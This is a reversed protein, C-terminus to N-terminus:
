RSGRVRPRSTPCIVAPSSTVGRTDGGNRCRATRRPLGLLTARHVRCIGPFIAFPHAQAWRATMETWEAARALDGVEECASVLSCYVKGTSYPGLRGEVAALMAEDILGLGGATDGADIRVRGLAQLAEAELDASGITRAVIRVQDGLAMADAYRGEGHAVEVERLLLVCREPGEPADALLRRGRALWAAGVSPRARLCHHEYLWVATVGAQVPDGAAEYAEFAHPNARRHLGGASGAM